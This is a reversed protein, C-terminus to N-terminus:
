PAWNSIPEYFIKYQDMLEKIRGSTKMSTLAQGLPEAIAQHQENLFTYTTNEYPTEITNLIFGDDIHSTMQNLEPAQLGLYCGIKNDKLLGLGQRWHKVTIAKDSGFFNEFSRYGIQFALKENSKHLAEISNMNSLTRRCISVMLIELFSSNEVRYLADSFRGYNSPRMPEGDLQGTVVMEACKTPECPVSSYDISLREFAEKYIDHLAKYFPTSSPLAIGFTISTSTAHAASSWFLVFVISTVLTRFM